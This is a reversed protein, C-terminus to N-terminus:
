TAAADRVMFGTSLLFGLAVFISFVDKAMLYYPCIDLMVDQHATGDVIQVPVCTESGFTPLINFLQVWHATAQQHKAEIDNMQDTLVSANAVKTQEIKSNAANEADQVDAATKTGSEDIKCAPKGPLGCTDIDVKTPAVPGGKPEPATTETKTTTTGDPNTTTTVCVTGVSLPQDKMTAPSANPTAEYTCTRQVKTTVPPANTVVEPEAVAVSTPAIVEALQAMADAWQQNKLTQDEFGYSNVM